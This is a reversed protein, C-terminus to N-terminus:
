FIKRDPYDGPLHQPRSGLFAMQPPRVFLSTFKGSAWLQEESSGRVAGRVPMAVNAVSVDNNSTLNQVITSNWPEAALNRESAYRRSWYCM